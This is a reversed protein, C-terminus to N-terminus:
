ALHHTENFSVLSPGRESLAIRTISAQDLRMRWSTVDDVGLAWAVAAKIPSVHSVVIVDDAGDASTALLEDCANRIRAGLAAISEGDPPTFNIDARWAQWTAASLASIRVQDWSGYDLEIWGGDTHVKTHAGAIALATQQARALPSAIITAGAAVSAALAAACRKAQQQGLMNLSRDARGQLLSAANADTQGHRVLILNM